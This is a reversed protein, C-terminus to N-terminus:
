ESYPVAEDIYYMEMYDMIIKRAEPRMDKVQTEGFLYQFSPYINNWDDLLLKMQCWVLAMPLMFSETSIPNQMAMEALGYAHQMNAYDSMAKLYVLVAWQQPSANKYIDQATVLGQPNAREKDAPFHNICFIMYDSFTTLGDICWGVANVLALRVDLPNADDSLYAMMEETLKHPNNAAAKVIPIDLYAKHFDTSTLPSDAYVNLHSVLAIFILAITKFIKQMAKITRINLM